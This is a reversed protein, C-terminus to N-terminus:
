KKDSHSCKIRRERKLSVNQFATHGYVVYNSSHDYDRLHAQLTIREFYVPLAYGKAGPTCIPM